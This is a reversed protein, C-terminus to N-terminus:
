GGARDATALTDGSQRDTQGRRVHVGDHRGRAAGDGAGGDGSPYGMLTQLFPTMLAMSALYTIGVIFIFFMGLTFNRDLLLRPNVFPQRGTFTHVLFVYFAGAAILAEVMIEGSSFWDLQEGRDLFIQLAAITLSLTGFGIWDLRTGAQARTETVYASVGAFAM